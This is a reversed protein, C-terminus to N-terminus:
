SWGQRYGFVGESVCHLPLLSFLRSSKSWSAVVVTQSVLLGASAATVRPIGHCLATFRPLLLTLSLSTRDVPLRQQSHQVATLAM